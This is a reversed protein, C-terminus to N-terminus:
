FNGMQSPSGTSWALLGQALAKESCVSRKDQKEEREKGIAESNGVRYDHHNGSAQGEGGKEETVCDNISICVRMRARARACVRVCACWAVEMEKEVDQKQGKVTAKTIGGPGWSFSLRCIEFDSLLGRGAEPRGPATTTLDHHRQIQRKLTRPHPRRNIERPHLPLKLKGRSAM